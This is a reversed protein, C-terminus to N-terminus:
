IPTCCIEVAGKLAKDPFRPTGWERSEFGSRCPAVHHWEGMDKITGRGVKVARKTM